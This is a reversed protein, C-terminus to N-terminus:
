HRKEAFLQHYLDLEMEVVKDLSYNEVAFQRAAKGMDIRLQEDALVEQLASRIGDPTVACLFGNRRHIILERIGPSDGAIVAAGCAMAEIITKPHGEYLSPQIYVKALRIIEPLRSNPLNGLFNVRLQKEMAYSELQVQQSGGGIIYLEVDLNILAELLSFLNKEKELRGIFCLRNGPILNIGEAPKFIDTVVYNPIIKIKGSLSIDKNILIDKMSSTAVVVQDAMPIVEREIKIAAQSLSSGQGEQNAMNISPIYGARAIFRTGIRQSVAM